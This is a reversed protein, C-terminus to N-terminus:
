LFSRIDLLLSQCRAPHFDLSHVCLSLLVSADINLTPVPTLCAPAHRVEDGPQIGPGRHVLEFNGGQFRMENPSERDHNLMDLLPKMVAMNNGAETQGMTWNRHLPFLKQVHVGIHRCWVCLLRTWAVDHLHISEMAAPFVQCSALHQLSLGLKPICLSVQPM